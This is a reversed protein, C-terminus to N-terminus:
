REQLRCLGTTQALILLHSRESHRELATLAPYTEKATRRELDSTVVIDLPESPDVLGELGIIVGTFQQTM